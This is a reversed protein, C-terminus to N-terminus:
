ILSRWRDTRKGSGSGNTNTNAEERREEDRRKSRPLDNFAGDGDGDGWILGARHYYVDCKGLVHGVAFVVIVVFIHDELFFATLEVKGLRREM